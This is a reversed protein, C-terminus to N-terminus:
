QVMPCFNVKVTHLWSKALSVFNLFHPFSTWAKPSSFSPYYSYCSAANSRAKDNSIWLSAPASIYFMVLTTTATQIRLRVVVLMPSAPLSLLWRTDKRMPAARGV